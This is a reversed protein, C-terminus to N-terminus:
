QPPPSNSGNAPAACMQRPLWPGQHSAPRSQRHRVVWFGGRWDALVMWVDMRAGAAAGAGTPCMTGRAATSRPQKGCSVPGSNCAIASRGWLLWRGCRGGCDLQGCVDRWGCSRSEYSYLRRQHDRSNDGRPRHGGHGGVAAVIGRVPVCRRGVRRGCAGGWVFRQRRPFIGLSLQISVSWDVAFEGVTHHHLGCGVAARGM